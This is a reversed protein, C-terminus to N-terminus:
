SRVGQIRGPARAKPAKSAGAPLAPTAAALALRERLKKDATRARAKANARERRREDIPQQIMLWKHRWREEGSYLWCVYFAARADNVMDGTFRFIRWGRAQCENYKVADSEFRMGRVHSGGTWTGGELEILIKKAPIAFDHSWDAYGDPLVTERKLEDIPIVKLSKMQELFTFELRSMKKKGM